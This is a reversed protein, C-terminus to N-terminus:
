DTKFKLTASIVIKFNEIIDKADFLQNKLKSIEDRQWENTTVMSDFSNLLGELSGNLTKCHNTKAYRELVEAAQPKLRFLQKIKYQGDILKIVPKAPQKKAPKKKATM